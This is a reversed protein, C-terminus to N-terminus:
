ARPLLPTGLFAAYRGMARDFAVTQRASLTGFPQPEVTIGKASTTRRWTGVIEGDVVITPLFLGNKGPVVLESHEPALAASRDQYGLLYEDFGPLALVTSSAATADGPLFYSTGDVVLEDLAPRAIALGARADTLTLSSWWAFDRVTAPGHGRFYRLAFEGLAEDRDLVRGNTVWEDLLVFTQKKAKGGVGPQLPGFVLVGWLALRNILHIGRQGATSVGAAEFCALLEDRPLARAGTLAAVAADRATACDEESLGLQRHRGASSQITRAATLGLMWGLDDPAVFHLTGRMPWSRVIDGTALAAEIAADTSGETRLGVSWKAGAFDQAQMALSHRVTAAVSSTPSTPSSPPTPASSPAIRQVGLRLTALERRKATYTRTM